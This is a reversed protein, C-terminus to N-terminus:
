VKPRFQTVHFRIAVVFFAVFFLESCNSSSFTTASSLICSFTHLASYCFVSVSAAGEAVLNRTINQSFWYRCDMKLSPPLLLRYKPRGFISLLHIGNFFWWRLYAKNTVLTFLSKEKYTSQLNVKLFLGNYFKPWITMISATNRRFAYRSAPVM